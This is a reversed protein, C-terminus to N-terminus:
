RIQILEGYIIKNIETIRLTLGSLLIETTYEDALEQNLRKLILKNNPYFSIISATLKNKSEMGMEKGILIIRNSIYEFDESQYNMIQKFSSEFRDRGDKNEFDNVLLRIVGSIFDLGTNYQYSELFRSLNSLLSQRQERNIIANTVKNNDIQYFVEFWKYFDDPNEAIHQLLYSTETFKFYDELRM